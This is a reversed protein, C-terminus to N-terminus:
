GLLPGSHTITLSHLAIIASLPTCDIASTGEPGSDPLVSSIELTQLHSLASLYPIARPLASLRTVTGALQLLGQM